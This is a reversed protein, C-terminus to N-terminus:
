RAIMTNFSANLLGAEILIAVVYWVTM